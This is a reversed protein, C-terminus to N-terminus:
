KSRTSWGRYIQEFFSWGDFLFREFNFWQIVIGLYDPLWEVGRTTGGESILMWILWRQNSHTFLILASVLSILAFTMRRCRMWRDSSSTVSQAAWINPDGVIAGHRSNTQINVFSRRSLRRHHRVCFCHSRNQAVTKTPLSRTGHVSSKFLEKKTDVEEFILSPKKPPKM